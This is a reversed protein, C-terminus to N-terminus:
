VSMRGGVNPKNLFLMGEEGNPILTINKGDLRYVYGDFRSTCVNNEYRAFRHVKTKEGRQIAETKLFELLYDWQKESKTLGYWDEILAAVRPHDFQFLRTRGVSSTSAPSIRAFM